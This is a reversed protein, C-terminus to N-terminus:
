GNPLDPFYILKQMRIDGCGVFPDVFEIWKFLESM